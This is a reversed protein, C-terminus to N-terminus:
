PTCLRGRKSLTQWSTIERLSDSGDVCEKFILHSNKLHCRRSTVSSGTRQALFRHWSRTCSSAFTWGSALWTTGQRCCECWALCALSRNESRHRSQWGNSKNDKLFFFSFFFATCNERKKKDEESKKNRSNTQHFTNWLCPNRMSTPTWSTCITMMMMIMITIIPSPNFDQSQTKSFCLFINKSFLFM